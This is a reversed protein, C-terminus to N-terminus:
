GGCELAAPGQFILRESAQAGTRDVQVVRSTVVVECRRPPDFPKAVIELLYESDNAHGLSVRIPSRARRGGLWGLNQQQSSIFESPIAQGRLSRVIDYSLPRKTADLTVRYVDTFSAVEIWNEGCLMGHVQFQPLSLVVPEPVGEGGYVPIVYLRHEGVPPAALGFQYALYGPGTCCYGDSDAYAAKPFLLAPVLLFVPLLRTM